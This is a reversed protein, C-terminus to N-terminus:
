RRGDGRYMILMQTRNGLTQITNVCSVDPKPTKSTGSVCRLGMAFIVFGPTFTTTGTENTTVHMRYSPKEPFSGLQLFAHRDGQSETHIVTHIHQEIQQM